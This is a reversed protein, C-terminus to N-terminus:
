YYGYKKQSNPVSDRCLALYMPHRDAGQGIIEAEYECNGSPEAKELRLIDGVSGASRLAESRLRFDHKDPWTMMNVAIVKGSLRVNVGRRDHKGPKKPDSEFADPWNWFGPCANRAALPIFIEPSRRQTGEATQGIGADTQQLTMVFGRYESSASPSLAPALTDEPSGAGEASDGTTLGHGQFSPARPEPRATFLSGTAQPRNRDDKRELDGASFALSAESPALGLESLRALFEDDLLKATGSSLDAWANLAQEVSDLVAAQGPDALDLPVRLGAEYNTFLGGETLNGSGIMLDAASSNRFLYIKPHFTFPLRNHFVIVRGKPSVANLLDRLGEASTGGHDIGVIIEVDAAQAFTALASAVHRTGSRKVFAIAARFGSWQRMSFNCKLYDGLRAFKSPQCIFEM